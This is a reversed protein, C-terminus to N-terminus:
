ILYTSFILYLYKIKYFFYKNLNVKQTSGQANKFIKQQNKCFSINHQYVLSCTNEKTCKGLVLCGDPLTLFMDFLSLVGSSTLFNFM